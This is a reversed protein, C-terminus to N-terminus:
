LSVGADIGIHDLLDVGTEVSPPAVRGFHALGFGGDAGLSVLNVGSLGITAHHRRELTPRVESTEAPKLLKQSELRYRSSLISRLWLQSDQM